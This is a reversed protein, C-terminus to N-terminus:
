KIKLWTISKLKDRIDSLCYRKHDTSKRNIDMDDFQLKYRRQGQYNRRNGDFYCTLEDKELEIKEIYSWRDCVGKGLEHDQPVNMKMIGSEAFQGNEQLSVRIIDSDKNVYVFSNEDLFAILPCDRIKCPDSIWVLSSFEGLCKGSRLCFVKVVDGLVGTVLYDDNPSFALSALNRNGRVNGYKEQFCVELNLLDIVFVSRFYVPTFIKKRGDSEQPDFIGTVRIAAYHGTSSFNVQTREQYYCCMDVSKFSDNEYHINPFLRFSKVTRKESLLIFYVYGIGYTVVIYKSDQTLFIQPGVDWQELLYQYRNDFLNVDFSEKVDKRNEAKLIGTDTCYVFWMENEAQIAYM